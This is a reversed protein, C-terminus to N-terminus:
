LGMYFQRIHKDALLKDGTGEIVIRGNALIYARDSIKLTQVLNQDILLIALGEKKLALLVGLIQTMLVPALGLSPEDLLLLTPNSMLGRAIALIQQEGGSLSGAVQNMRKSLLPFIEIVRKMCRERNTRAVPAVSGTLLNERVSMKSFLMRGEPVQVIGREVIRHPQFNTIEVGQFRIHGCTAKLLGSIVHLLTSKGAGNSGIISVIQATQVELSIEHLVKIQAYQASVNELKLL